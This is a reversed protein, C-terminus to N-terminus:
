AKSEVGLSGKRLKTKGIIRRRLSDGGSESDNLPSPVRSSYFSQRICAYFVARNLLQASNEETNNKNGKKGDPKLPLLM